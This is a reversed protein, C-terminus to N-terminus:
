FYSGAIDGKIYGVLDLIEQDDEDYVANLFKKDYM